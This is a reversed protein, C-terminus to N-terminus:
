SLMGLSEKVVEQITGRGRGAGTHDLTVPHQAIHGPLVPFVGTEHHGRMARHVAHRIWRDCVLAAVEGHLRVAHRMEQVLRIAQM